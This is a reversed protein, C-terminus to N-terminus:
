SRRLAFPSRVRREFETLGGWIGHREYASAHVGCRRIVPCRACIQKARRKQKARRERDRRANTSEGDAQFFLAPDSGRCSADEQWLWFDHDPVL